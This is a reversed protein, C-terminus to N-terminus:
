IEIVSIFGHTSLDQIFADCSDTRIKATHKCIQCAIAACRMYEQVNETQSMSKRWLIFVAASNGKAKFKFGQGIYWKM